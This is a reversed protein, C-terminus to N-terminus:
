RALVIRNESSETGQRVSVFYIGSPAARGSDDKGNWRVEYPGPTAYEDRLSRVLRGNVSFIRISVPGSGQVAYKINTYPNFPNPAAASTVAASGQKTLDITGRVLVNDIRTHATFILTIRSGNPVNRLLPFIVSPRFQFDLDGISNGNIDGIKFGKGLPVSVEPVSGANPYTTRIKITTQDIETVARSLCEIGFKQYGNGNTKLILAAGTPQVIQIPIFDVITVGATATSSLTPSGNDTVTLAALYTGPAAYTHNPTAGTGSSGDGFNWSFSLTQGADPDSSGRGDFVVPQATVGNYPGGPNAVPPSNSSTVHLVFSGASNGLGDSVTITVNYDGVDVADTWSLTGTTGNFTMGVPLPPSSVITWSLVDSEVDIASATLSFPVFAPASYTAALPPSFFPPFNAFGTVLVPFTGNTANSVITINDSMPGTSFPHFATTLVTSGGPPVLSNGIFSSFGSGSHLLDTILLVNGGLNSVVFDFSPSTTGSSVSGFDHSLPIVSILPGSVAVARGAREASLRVEADASAAAIGPLALLLFSAISCLAYRTTQRPQPKM